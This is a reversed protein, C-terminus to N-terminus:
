TNICVQQLTSAQEWWMRQECEKDSFRYGIPLQTQFTDILLCVLWELVVKIKMDM